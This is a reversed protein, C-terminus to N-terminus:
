WGPGDILEWEDGNKGDHDGKRVIENLAEIEKESVEDSYDAPAPTPFVPLVRASPAAPKPLRGMRKERDPCRPGKNVRMYRDNAGTAFERRAYRNRNNLM